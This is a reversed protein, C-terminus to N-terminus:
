EAFDSTSFKQNVSINEHTQTMLIGNAFSAKLTGQMQKMMAKMRPRMAAIADPTAPQNQMVLTQKSAADITQDSLLANDDVKEVYRTRTQRVLFDQKGIWLTASVTGPKGADPVKSLDMEASVVYCDVGGAKGDQEKKLPYRGAIAPYIFVDGCNQNFFAGPITAAASSSLAAAGALAARRDPMKQPNPGNQLGAASIAALAIPNAPSGADVQLYDGSGDSWVKGQLGMYNQTWDIRYQNPRQLRTSFTLTLTQSAIESEVTGTDSYSSLAAYAARTKAAIDQATLEGGNTQPFAVTAASDALLTAVGLRVARKLIIWTTTKM